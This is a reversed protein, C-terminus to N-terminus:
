GVVCLVTLWGCVGRLLLAARPNPQLLNSVWPDVQQIRTERGAGELGTRAPRFGAVLLAESQNYCAVDM